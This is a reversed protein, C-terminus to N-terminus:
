SRLGEWSSGMSLRRSGVITKRKAREGAKGRSLRWRADVEGWRVGYCCGLCRRSLIPSHPQGAPVLEHGLSIPADPRASYLRPHPALCDVAGRLRAPGPGHGSRRRCSACSRVRGESEGKRKERGQQGSPTEVRSRKERREQGDRSPSGEMAVAAPAREGSSRSQHRRRQRSDHPAAPHSAVKPTRAATPRQQGRGPTQLASTGETLPLLPFRACRTVRLNRSRRGAAAFGGRLFNTSIAKRQQHQYSPM